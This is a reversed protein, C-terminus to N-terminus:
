AKISTSALAQPQSIPKAAGKSTAAVPVFQQRLHRLCTYVVLADVLLHLFTGCLVAEALTIELPYNAALYAINFVTAAAEVIFFLMLQKLPLVGIFKKVLLVIGVLVSAAAVLVVVLPLTTQQLALVYILDVFRATTSFILIWYLITKLL